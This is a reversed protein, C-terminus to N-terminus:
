EQKENRAATLSLFHGNRGSISTILPCRYTRDQTQNRQKGTELDKVLEVRPGDGVRPVYHFTELIGHEQPHNHECNQHLRQNNLLSAAEGPSLHPLKEEGGERQGVYVLGVM